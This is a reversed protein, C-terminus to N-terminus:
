NVMFEKTVTKKSKDDTLQIFYIGKSLGSIDIGNTLQPRPLMYITKGLQNIVKLYYVQYAADTFNFYLRNKAPNPYVDFKFSSSSTEIMQISSYSIKGDKDIMKLRYYNVGFLPSADTFDYKNIGSSAKAQLSGITEWTINNSSREVVFQNSSVQNAASWQLAVKNNAYASTFSLLSLPLTSTNKVIFQGMMGEDEHLAIHCHYMFPHATDAYDDFKAIFKVTEKSKVLVVDKWGKEYDSVAVGNRSLIYFEVDHIHFPHAFVSTSALSWIETNNLPVTHSNYNFDFLKHELIFANPGLITESTVGTSDSLSITRTINASSQSPFVNTTLQTPIATIANSNAAGINLHLITFDKKGLANKFPGGPFNEGGGIFNSITSNYAKLDVTTSKQGTCNVLIEIREGPSLLYRTVAVPANLLGGDSTIVYFTRGDSFGLNYSREIAADLIRLRVVQAPVTYQPRLVGNVMMSDGYPVVTFQNNSFSHDSLALPIDDVGYTRPLALASEIADRVIIFGGIGKTIQEESMHHLHPHYWYTAANNSVKWYPRWITGPPIIQHPGGDMVAPLHMGHWHLTTSDNLYNHVNMYVSDGQNFILTPGWFKNNIGGTITQNGTSIIQSFTDKINLNFTPGHLTDPIWLTNYQAISKNSGITCCIIFFAFICASQKKFHTM